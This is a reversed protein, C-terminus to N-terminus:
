VYILHSTIRNWSDFVLAFLCSLRFSRRQCKYMRVDEAWNYSWGFLLGINKSAVRRPQERLSISYTMLWPRFACDLNPRSSCLEAILGHNSQLAYIYVCIPAPQGCRQLESNDNIHKHRSSVLAHLWYKDPECHKGPRIYPIPNDIMALIHPTMYILRNSTSQRYCSLRAKRGPIMTHHSTSHMSTIPKHVEDSTDLFLLWLSPRLGAFIPRVYGSEHCTSFSFQPDQIRLPQM